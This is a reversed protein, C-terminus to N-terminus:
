AEDIQSVNQVGIIFKVGLGRGFNVANEIYQLHPLLRFEDIVFWVNGKSHGRSLSEKIAMDFLLRYIPTLMNAVGIDYEVFVVRGMKERVLQRMSLGGAQAFNSMFTKRSLQQLEAFVGNAQNSGAAIYTEMAKLDDYCGLMERLLDIPSGDLYAKLGQNDRPLYDTRNFHLLVAALLDKAANPFFPEKSGHIKEYFLTEAIEFISERLKAENTTDIEAFINWSDAVGIMAPDNAIVIDGPKYFKEHFDGKSDFLIMVDDPGMSQRLQHVVHFIVNTKGTGIGGMFCLHKSFIDADLAISAPNGTGDQGALRCLVPEKVPYPPQTDHLRGGEFVGGPLNRIQNINM